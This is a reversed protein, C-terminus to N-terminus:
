SEQKMKAILATMSQIQLAMDSVESSAEQMANSTQGAISNIETIARNIEECTASQEESSTAIARVQDATSDAMSVIEALMEGSRTAEGAVMHILEVAKEVQAISENVSKQIGAISRGVESTSAMTKEALKRVEDAVVAFGRGAEGARAAEIAANLALLNTQDAIDSIVNMINSIAEAQKALEMIDAKMALSVDRVNQISAVAQRVVAAGASAKEKTAVSFDSAMGSTRSVELITATMEHMATATENVRTAQAAAGRGSELVQTSLHSSATEIANAVGELQRAAALMGEAKAQEAARQATEAARMAELAKVSSAEAERTKEEAKSIMDKISVILRQLAAALSGIEDARKMDIVVDLNGGAAAGADRAITLVPATITRAILVGMLIAIILGSAGLGFALKKSSTVQHLFEKMAENQADTMMVIIKTFLGRVTQVSPISVDNFVRQAEALKGEERLKRIQAASEHLASHPAEMATLAGAIQPFTVTADKGDKGYFWVGLACKRPDVQIQLPAQAPDLVYKQLNNIWVLHDIERALILEAIEAGKGFAQTQKALQEITHMFKACLVGIILLMACIFVLMKRTLGLNNWFNM